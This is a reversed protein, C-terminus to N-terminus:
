SDSKFKKYDSVQLQIGVHNKVDIVRAKVQKGKAM